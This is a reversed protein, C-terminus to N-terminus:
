DQLDGENLLTYSFKNGYRNIHEKSLALINKLDEEYQFVQCGASNNNVNKTNYGHHCNIGFYGTDQTAPDLDLEADMDRDRYVTCKGTQVFAKYKNMHLGHSWIDKHHGEKLIACGKPNLLKKQMYYTGPDTTFHNNEIVVPVGEEDHYIMVFTDDWENITKNASRIGILNCKYPEVFFPYGKKQVADKVRTYSLIM